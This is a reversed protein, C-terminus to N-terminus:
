HWFLFVFIRFIIRRGCFLAPRRALCNASIRYTSRATFRWGPERGLSEYLLLVDLFIVFPKLHAKHVSEFRFKFFTHIEFFVTWKQRNKLGECQVSKREFGLEKWIQSWRIVCQFVIIRQISIGWVVKCPFCRYFYHFSTLSYRTAEM